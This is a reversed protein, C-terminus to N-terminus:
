LLSHNEVVSISVRPSCASPLPTLSEILKQLAELAPFLRRMNFEGPDTFIQINVFNREGSDDSICEKDIEHIFCLVKYTTFQQFTQAVNQALERKMELEYKTMYVNITLM